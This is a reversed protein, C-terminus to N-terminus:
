ASSRATTCADVLYVISRYPVDAHMSLGIECTRSHSYGAECGEPLEAKLSRLAHANLEPTTFGKDGAWGCCGISPPVIATEACATGIAKLKGELGMKRGSCTVHLAVADPKRTFTLREMLRDHIFEVIDAPRLHEPLAQKLRYSCPSTDSVIPLAGDHSAEALARAVEEAKAKATEAHGGSDFPQGCCLGSLGKPYIVTYGAKELLGQTKVPLSQTEPDRQAPGMTRSVCSPLYVVELPEAQRTASKAGNTAAAPEFHVATPMAKSWVPLRDGSMRRLTRTVSEM